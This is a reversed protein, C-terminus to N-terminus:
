AAPVPAPGGMPRIGLRIAVVALEHGAAALDRKAAEYEDHGPISRRYREKASIYRAYVTEYDTM